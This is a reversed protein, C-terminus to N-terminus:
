SLSNGVGRVLEAITVRGDPIRDFPTCESVPTGGLSINVGRILEDISVRGDKNCDGVLAPGRLKRLDAVLAERSNFLRDYEDASVVVSVIKSNDGPHARNADAAAETAFLFNANHKKAAQSGRRGRVSLRYILVPPPAGQPAALAAGAGGVALAGAAVTGGIILFERRSLQGRAM